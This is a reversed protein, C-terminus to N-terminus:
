TLAGWLSIAAGVWCVVTAGGNSVARGNDGLRLSLSAENACVLGILACIAAPFLHILNWTM